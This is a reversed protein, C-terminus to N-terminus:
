NLNFDNRNPILNVIGMLVNHNFKVLPVALVDTSGLAAIPLAM